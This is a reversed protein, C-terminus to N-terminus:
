GPDPKENLDMWYHHLSRILEKLADFSVPKVLYSNVGLAYARAIDEAERSSSLVIVPVRCGGSQGRFWELVELGSIRPLKLDLLIITPWQSDGPAPSELKAKLWRIAAEGDEVVSVSAALNSVRLARRFLAADNPDDEILLISDGKKEKM